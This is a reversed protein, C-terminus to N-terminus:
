IAPKFVMLGVGVLPLGIGLWGWFKWQGVLKAYQPQDFSAGSEAGRALALMKRQLPAVRTGFIAGSAIFLILTWLVWGTSLIPIRGIMAAAVGAAILVLVSPMTFVRDSRIVGSVTHAILKPDRTRWAHGHWFLGTLINGLFAVVALIHVVKFLLYM